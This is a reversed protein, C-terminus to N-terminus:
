IKSYYICVGCLCLSVDLVSSGTECHSSFRKFGHPVRTLSASPLTSPSGMFRSDWLKLLGLSALNTYSHPTDFAIM